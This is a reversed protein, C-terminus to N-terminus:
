RLLRFAARESVYIDPLMREGQNRPPLPLTLDNFRQM